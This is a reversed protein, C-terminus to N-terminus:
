YALSCNYLCQEFLFGNSSGNRFLIFYVNYLAHLTYQADILQETVTYINLILFIICEKFMLIGKVCTLDFITFSGSNSHDVHIYIYKGKELWIIYM